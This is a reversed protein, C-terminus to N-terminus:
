CSAALRVDLTAAAPQGRTGVLLVGGDWRGTGPELFTARWDSAVGRGDVSWDHVPTGPDVPCARLDTDGAPDLVIANWGEVLEVSVVVGDTASIHRAHPSTEPALLGALGHAGMRDLVPELTHELTGGISLYSRGDREVSRLRLRAVEPDLLTRVSSAFWPEVTDPSFGDRLCDRAGDVEVCQSTLDLVGREGFATVDLREVTHVPGDSRTTAVVTPRWASGYGSQAERMAPRYHDLVRLEGPDLLDVLDLGSAEGSAWGITAAAVEEILTDPDSAGRRPEAPGAGGLGAERVGCELLMGLPSVFWSSGRRVAVVTACPEGAITETHREGLSLDFADMVVTAALGEERGAVSISEIPLLELDDTVTIPPAFDVELDLGLRWGDAPGAGDPLYRLLGRFGDVEDPPLLRAAAGLDDSAIAAVMGEAAAISSSAGRRVLGSLLVGGVVLAVLVMVGAVGLVLRRSRRARRGTQGESTGPASGAVETHVPVHLPAPHEAPPALHETWRQGDWYRRGGSGGPDQYWGAASGGGNSDGAM